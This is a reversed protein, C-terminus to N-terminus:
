SMFQKTYILGVVQTRSNHVDFFNDYSKLVHKLVSRCYFHRIKHFNEVSYPVSSFNEQTLIASLTITSLNVHPRKEFLVSLILAFLDENSLKKLDWSLQFIQKANTIVM